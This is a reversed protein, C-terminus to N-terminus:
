QPGFTEYLHRFRSPIPIWVAGTGRRRKKFAGTKKLWWGVQEPSRYIGLDELFSSLMKPSLCPDEALIAQVLALIERDDKDLLLAM